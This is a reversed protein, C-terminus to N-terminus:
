IDRFDPAIQFAHRYDLPNVLVIRDFDHAPLTVIERFQERDSDDLGYGIRDDFVLWWEPYKSKYQSIKRTKECICIQLNRQMEPILWGGADDDDPPGPVYFTQHARNARFLELAFGDGLWVRTESHIGDMFGQLVQHLKPELTKWRAVPRRFDLTLFWSAGQTPPGFSLALKRIRDRLRIAEEELGEIRRKGVYNQNLRRVEVAIRQDVLFDPPLHQGDPHHVIDKHGEHALFAAARMESENM